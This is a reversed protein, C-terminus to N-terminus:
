TKGCLPCAGETVDGVDDDDVEVLEMADQELVWQLAFTRAENRATRMPTGHSVLADVTEAYLKAFAKARDAESTFQTSM